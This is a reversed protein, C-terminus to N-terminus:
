GLWYFMLAMGGLMFLLIGIWVFVYLTEQKPPPTHIGIAMHLGRVMSRLLAMKDGRGSPLGADAAYAIFFVQCCLACIKHDVDPSTLHRGVILVPAEFWHREAM